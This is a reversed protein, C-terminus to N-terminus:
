DFIELDEVRWFEFGGGPMPRQIIFPIKKQKLEIQAISYGDCITPPVDVLPPAGADLQKARQGLIRTREYKSLFPLTKHLDDVIIGNKDRVVKTMAKVESYNHALTEPHYDKLFDDNIDVDLKQLYDDDSEEDSEEDSINQNNVIQNTTEESEQLDDDQYENDTEDNLNPKTIISENEGENDIDSNNDGDKDIGMNDSSYEYEVDDDEVDDDEVDDDEVDDDEADDDEVDDDESDDDEVDDDESDSKHITDDPDLSLNNDENPHGLSM